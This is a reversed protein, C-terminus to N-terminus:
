EDLEEGGSNKSLEEQFNRDRQLNFYEKQENIENRLDHFWRESNEQLESLKNMIAIKFKKDMLDSDGM